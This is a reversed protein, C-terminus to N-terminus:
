NSKKFINPTVGFASKFAKTYSQVDAFGCQYAVDKIECQDLLLMKSFKLRRQVIYQHPTQNFATKFLRIFHYESLNASQAIQEVTIKEQFNSDMFEKANYLFSFLRKNTDQKAFELKSFQRYLVSQDNVICEAITYFLENTIVNPSEIITNFVAGIKNLALGLSTNQSKFKNIFLEDSFLFKEFGNYENFAYNMVEQIKLKSVDVCIGNVTISSDILISACTHQNGIVYEGKNVIYKKQNIIYTEQGSLVYKASFQNFNIVDDFEQVSSLRLENGSVDSVIKKNM